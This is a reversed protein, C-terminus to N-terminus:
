RASTQPRLRVSIMPDISPNAPYKIILQKAYDAAKLNQKHELYFTCLAYIFDYNDPEKNLAALLYKEAQASNGQSNELLALNYIIRTNQPMLEISRLFYKRSEM